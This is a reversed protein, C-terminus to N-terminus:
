QRAELRVAGNFGQRRRATRKALCLAAEVHEVGGLDKAHEAGDLDKATLEGNRGREAGAKGTTFQAWFRQEPSAGDGTM